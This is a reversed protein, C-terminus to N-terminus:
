AVNSLECYYWKYQINNYIIFPIVKVLLLHHRRSGLMPQDVLKAPRKSDVPNQHAWQQESIATQRYKCKEEGVFMSQQPQLVLTHFFFLSPSLPAAIDRSLFFPFLFIDARKFLAPIRRAKQWKLLKTNMCCMHNMPINFTYLWNWVAFM